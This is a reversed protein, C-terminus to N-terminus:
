WLFRASSHIELVNECGDGPGTLDLPQDADQPSLLSFGHDFVLVAVDVMAEALDLDAVEKFTEDIAPGEEDLGELEGILETGYGTRQPARGHSIRRDCLVLDDVDVSLRPLCALDGHDCSGVLFGTRGAM